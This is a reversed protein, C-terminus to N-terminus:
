FNPPKALKPKSRASKTPRPARNFFPTLVGRVAITRLNALSSASVTTLSLGLGVGIVTSFINVPQKPKLPEDVVIRQTPQANTVRLGPAQTNQYQRRQAEEEERKKRRQVEGGRDWPTVRDVLRTFWNGM